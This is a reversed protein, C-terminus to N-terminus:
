AARKGLCFCGWALSWSGLVQHPVTKLGRSIRKLGNWSWFIIIRFNYSRLYLALVQDSIKASVSWWVAETPCFGGRREVPPLHPKQGSLFLMGTICYIRQPYFSHGINGREKLAQILKWPSHYCFAVRWVALAPVHVGGRLLLCLRVSLTPPAM